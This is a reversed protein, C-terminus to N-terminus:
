KVYKRKNVVGTMAVALGALLVFFYVATQSNDGTQPVVATKAQEVIVFTSFHNTRFTLKGDKITANCNTFSGDDNVRYVALVNGEKVKIDTPVPITVEVYGKLQTMQTGEGSYLNIEVMKFNEVEKLKKEMQAVTEKFLEGEVLYQRVFFADEDVVTTEAKITLDPMKDNGLVVTEKGDAEKVVENNKNDEAIVVDEREIGSGEEKIVEDKPEEPKPEEPKPDEPKPEEPKPDQPREPEDPTLDAGGIYEPDYAPALNEQDVTYTKVTDSLIVGNVAPVTITLKGDAITAAKNTLLDTLKDADVKLASLDITVEKDSTANNVLIIMVEDADRRVYGMVNNNVVIPEVSGTRLVDHQARIAALTAYWTVLEKNGKGWEMARRDDPDDSGTMGIEDGYYITPAGAYTFQMLAVLYQRQKALDSTTEYTPFASAEDTQKRDDDIGDLYSLVRTTDHSGVLNMMAYFAEEPYRERIKELAEMAATASGGKAFGTVATRFVYNMVSDYMDGMLYHTADDWIEGIIVADSDLAKVSDRFEQWTEDSVENAVDLRWGNNGKSIWYQTVSTEEENYIIEEAWNGTQYESGNTSYIVPMSDYGWWGEYSYVAKGARLGINDVAGEMVTSNVEFWETYSYDTIGYEATFYEKAAAEATTQDVGKEAMYDYVYAWYPYAGIKESKGLFKYYRDFYISDDSVHNFVGDLIIKMGNEEAFRVLDEFDGLTGLIPDIETYDCADYRHNSISSFIPNLYIVNVGLAKLYDIREYIGELDGGYIENSWNGDGYYAGHEKYQEETLIEEQEPNEPLLYWDDVFEYDVEGRASEQAKDNEINGNYFRDPFIQYIVANKMWDPTEFGEEHVILDYPNCNDLTTAKGEGAYKTDNEADDCYVAITEGNSIIFYYDFEGIRDFSTTATWKQVGDTLTSKEMEVNKIGKVVLVVSTADTGTNITFTVDSNQEVSGYVSKYAKDKTTYYIKEGDVPRSAADHYFVGTAPDYYFTVLREKDLNFDNIKYEKDGILLKYGTHEGAALAVQVSYIGKLEDDTLKVTENIGSGVLTIDAFVYDISNVTYHSFDSYYITVDQATPVYLSINGEPSNKVADAGYNETWSGDIAIKYYYTAAPLNVFTYKYIGNGVYTMQHSTTDWSAGPFSGPVNVVRGKFEERTYRSYEKGGITVTEQKDNLIRNGDVEFFFVYDLVADGFYLEPSVYSNKKDATMNVSALAAEGKAEVESKVGYKLVVNKNKDAVAVFKTTGTKGNIIDMKAPKEVPEEGKLIAAIAEPNEVSTYIKKNTVNTIIEVYTSEAPVTIAYNANGDGYDSGWSGGPVIKFSADKDKELKDFTIKKYYYGKGLYEMLGAGNAGGNEAWNSQGSNAFNNFDGALAVIEYPAKDIKQCEWKGNVESAPTFFWETSIALDSDTLAMDVTQSSGNTFIINIKEKLNWDQCTWVYYDGDKQIEAGPWAGNLQKGDKDWVYAYVKEWNTVKSFYVKVDAVPDKETEPEWEIDFKGLITKIQEAHQVSNYAVKAETDAVIVVSTAGAVDIVYNNGNNGLANDWSGNFTVKFEATTDTAKKDFTIIKYYYGDGLYEMLGAGNTGGEAAWHSQESAFKDFNGAVAVKDYPEKDPEPEPKQNADTVWAEPATTSVALEMKWNNGGADSWSGEKVWCEYGSTLTEKSISVDYTQQNKNDGTNYATYLYNFGNGEYTTTVTYWGANDANEQVSPRNEWSDALLTKGEADWAHMKLNTWYSPKQFHITITPKEDAKFTEAPIYTAVMTFLMVMVLMTSMVRKLGNMGLKKFTKAKM